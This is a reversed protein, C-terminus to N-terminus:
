LILLNINGKEDGFGGIETQSKMNVDKSPIIPPTSTEIKRWDVGKFWPHFAIERDSKGGLRTQGDKGLLGSIFEKTKDDISDDFEPEMEQMALDICEEQTKLGGWTCAKHTHFPCCGILFEYICCGLSFYDVSLFYNVRKGNEDKKM